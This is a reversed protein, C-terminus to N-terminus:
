EGLFDDRDAQLRDGFEEPTIQSTTLDQIAAMHVDFATPTSWDLFAGLANTEVILNWSDVLESYLTGAEVVDPALGISPLMSAEAWLSAARESAMWTIYECALESNPSGVRIAYGNSTGGLAMTSADASPGPMLFFGTREAAPGAAISSAFWNGVILLAGEGNEFLPVQDGYGIGEFGDTFYGKEAWEQLTAAAEVSPEDTWKSAPDGFVLGDMFARDQQQSYMLISWLHHGGLGDLNGFVIPTRGSGKITELAAEFDALTRPIEIGLEEFIEKNYFVGTLWVTPGMGYFNGEGFAEGDETWRHQALLGDPVQWDNQQACTTLDELLGAKVLQGTDGYGQNVMAVDPGDSSSLVLRATTRMDEFVIVTREIEVGPHNAEFEENLQDIVKSDEERTWIDTVQLTIPEELMEETPEPMEETPAPAEPQTAPAQTPTAAPTCAALVLALGFFVVCTRKLAQLRRM